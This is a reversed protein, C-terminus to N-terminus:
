SFRLHLHFSTGPELTMTYSRRYTGLLATVQYTGAPLPLDTLSGADAIASLRLGQLDDVQLQLPASDAPRRGGVCRARLGHLASQLVSSGQNHANIIEAHILLHAAAPASLQPLPSNLSM